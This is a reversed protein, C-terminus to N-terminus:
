RHRSFNRPWSIPKVEQRRSHCAYLPSASLHPPIYMHAARTCMLLKLICLVKPMLTTIFCFLICVGKHGHTHFVDIIMSDFALRVTTTPTRRPCAHATLDAPEGRQAPRAPPPVRVRLYRDDIEIM